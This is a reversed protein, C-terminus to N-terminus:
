DPGSRQSLVAGVWTDSAAVVFQLAPDPHTLVPALTFREKLHTFAQDAELTWVFPISASTLQFVQFTSSM